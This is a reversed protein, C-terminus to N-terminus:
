LWGPAGAGRVFIGFSLGPQTNTDSWEGQVSWSSIAQGRGSQARSLKPREPGLNMGTDAGSTLWYCLLSPKMLLLLIPLRYGSAQGLTGKEWGGQASSSPM